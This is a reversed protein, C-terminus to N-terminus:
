DKDRPQFAAPDFALFFQYLCFLGLAGTLVGFLPSGIFFEVGTWVFLVGTVAARRWLPLFFPHRIELYRM